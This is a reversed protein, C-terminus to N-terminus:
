RSKDNRVVEKLRKIEEQQEQVARWLVSIMSYLEAGDNDKSTIEKRYNYKDGIVFGIHKKDTEKEDKLHYKYIDVNKVIDLGNEFKEFDKKKEELSTQTLSVCTINGSQTSMEITPTQNLNFYMGTVGFYARYDDGGLTRDMGILPGVGCQLEFVLDGEKWARLVSGNIMEMYTTDDNANVQKITPADDSSTVLLSGGTIEVNNMTGNNCTMNGQEDVRFGDNITTYGELAIKNATIKTEEPTLNIASIVEDGDVKKSVELTIEKQNKIILPIDDLGRLDYRRVVDEPTRVGNLDQKM